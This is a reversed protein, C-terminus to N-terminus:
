IHIQEHLVVPLRKLRKEVIALLIGGLAEPLSESVPASLVENEETVYGVSSFRGILFWDLKVILIDIEVVGVAEKTPCLLSSRLRGYRVRTAVNIGSDSTGYWM